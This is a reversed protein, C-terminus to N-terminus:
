SAKARTRLADLGAEADALAAIVARAADDSAARRAADGDTIAPPTDAEELAGPFTEVDATEFEAYQDADADDDEAVTEELMGVPKARVGLAGEIVGMRLHMRRSLAGILLAAEMLRPVVGDICLEHGCPLDTLSIPSDGILDRELGRLRGDLEALSDLTDIVQRLGDELTAEREPDYPKAQAQAVATEAAATGGNTRKFASFVGM